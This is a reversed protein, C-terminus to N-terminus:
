ILGRDVAGAVGMMLVILVFIAIAKVTDLMEQRDM